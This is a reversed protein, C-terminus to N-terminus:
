PEDDANPKKTKVPPQTPERADGGKKNTLVQVGGGYVDENLERLAESSRKSWDPPISGPSAEDIAHAVSLWHRAESRYGIRYDTMGRLYAYRARDSVSLRQSDPELARLIALAREHQNQEFANQSRQLDDQYTACGAVGVGIVAFTLLPAVFSRARM